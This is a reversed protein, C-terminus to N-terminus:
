PSGQQTLVRRDQTARVVFHTQISRCAHLFEFIDAGRDAVHVRIRDQASPGSIAKGRASADSRGPKGKPPRSAFSPGNIPAAWYRGVRRPSQWSPKCTYGEDTGM